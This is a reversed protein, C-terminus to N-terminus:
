LENVTQALRDRQPLLSLLSESKWLVGFRELPMQAHTLQTSCESEMVRNVNVSLQTDDRLEFSVITM